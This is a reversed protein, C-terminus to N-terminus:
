LYINTFFVTKQHVYTYEETADICLLPIVPDHPICINLKLLYALCHELTTLCIEEEGHTHSYPITKNLMIDGAGTVACFKNLIKFSCM